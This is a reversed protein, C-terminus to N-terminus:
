CSMSLRSLSLNDCDAFKIYVFFNKRLHEKLLLICATAVEEGPCRDVCAVVCYTPCRGHTAPQARGGSSAGVGVLGARASGGDCARMCAIWMSAREFAVHVCLNLYLFFRLM